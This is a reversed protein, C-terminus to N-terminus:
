HQLQSTIERALGAPVLELVIAFAGAQELALADDLIQAADSDSKGQVKHGGFQNVSQPTLGLHGMVPIEADLIARIAPLRKAGGELKIADAGAERVFRAANIVADREGLHYSLWPM